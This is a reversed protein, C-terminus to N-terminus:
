VMPRLEVRFFKTEGPDLAVVRGAREETSRANPLNTAPEIGVVYGDSIAGTNKWLIFHPLTSTDFRIEFASVSNAGHLTVGAWGSKDYAPTTFYVRERYGAEPEGIINWTDLESASLDDKPTLSLLDAEISAGAALIPTGVNIHYLLQMTTPVALENTVEDTIAITTSGARFVNHSTLRLRNFFLKTELVDGIVEVIGAPSDVVVRLDRAPLNAIRGHLPYRLTGSEDKDPAGNSVLGCRVLLEDFGELWGLGAPDMVPVLSPHVPGDVPSTWGFETLENSQGRVWVKWIGMGRGPLLMTVAAGTDVVVVEVGTSKGGVLVGHQVTVTGLDTEYQGAIPSSDIWDVWLPSGDLPRVFPLTSAMTSGELANFGALAM